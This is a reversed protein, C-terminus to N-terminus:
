LNEIEGASLGTVQCITEVPLNLAKMRRANAQKEEMRGEALGEQRGEALGEQRGEALGEQRGEQRGEMAATSLVDNQIMIANIHEDYALQEAKNMNYYVLKRRAEELGPAKTDPHIVGTKLYEIWEELPTVAVKNFENVRILFYEPFIEAPLKRVIANKEKTSVELLDGTHVGVFSNQGHYLYDTGRGIDFYLISISYVKKVESYLQGLEIHETIAKAVGFLIRELYYIERTNQVEVIIIEDKSNRAKIDVRNFKDTENLQNGESELIEVIRIPEGLLVTLFGELVGFNAKNRLLRKVAWDFRIYRDKQEMM